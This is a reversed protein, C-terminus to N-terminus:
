ISVIVSQYRGRSTHAADASHAETTKLADFSDSPLGQAVDPAGPGSAVCSKFAGAEQTAEDRGQWRVSRKSSKDM